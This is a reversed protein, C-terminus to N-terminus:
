KTWENSLCSTWRYETDRDRERHTKIKHIHVVDDSKDEDVVFLSWEVNQFMLMRMITHHVDQDNMQMANLEYEIPEKFKFCFKRIKNFCYIIQEMKSIMANMYKM